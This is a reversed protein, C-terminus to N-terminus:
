KNKYYYKLYAKALNPKNCCISDVGNEILKKYVTINEDDEMDIWANIAMGNNHAKNCVEKTADVWHISLCNGKKTYDFENTKNKNYIFGFVLQKRHFRNYEVIKNYYEFILSSLMIQDFFDYKKILKILHKFVFDIRNDKIELNIFIKNKAIQILDCLRPMTLNDKLTRYTSLEDWSLDIVNGSHDYYNSLSGNISNAHLLVLVNDKTLWVDTEISDVNYEIAKKFAEMTNQFIETNPGRHSEIYVKKHRFIDKSRRMLLKKLDITIIFILSNLYIIKTLINLTKKM